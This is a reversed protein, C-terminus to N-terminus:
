SESACFRWNSPVSKSNTRALVVEVKSAAADTLALVAMLTVFGFARPIMAKMFMVVANGM